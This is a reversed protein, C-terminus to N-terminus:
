SGRCNKIQLTQSGVSRFSSYSYITSFVITSWFFFGFKTLMYESGKRMWKFDEFTKWTFDNIFWHAIWYGPPIHVFGPELSTTLGPLVIIALFWELRRISLATSTFVPTQITSVSIRLYNSSTLLTVSKWFKLGPLFLSLVSIFIFIVSCCLGFLFFWQYHVSVSSSDFFSKCFSFM